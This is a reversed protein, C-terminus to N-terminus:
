NCRRQGDDAHDQRVARGRGAAFQEDSMNEPRPVAKILGERDFSYVQDFVVIPVILGNCLEPPAIPGRMGILVDINTPNPQLRIAEVLRDFDSPDRPRVIYTELGQITLVWYLQRALYRSELKSLVNHFAESRM